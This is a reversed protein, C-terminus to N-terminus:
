VCCASRNRSEEVFQDAGENDSRGEARKSRVERLAVMTTINRGNIREVRWNLINEAGYLSAYVRNEVESEWDILTGARGVSIVESVVKNAYGTLTSGMMDPCHAFLAMARGISTKADPLKVFPPRRFILGCYGEATRATANFFLARQVYAAYEEDSQSDLRPLYRQRAGKVAVEGEM